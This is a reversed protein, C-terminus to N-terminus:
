QAEGVYVGPLMFAYNLCTRVFAINKQVDVVNACSCKVKDIYVRAIYTYVNQKEGWMCVGISCISGGHTPGCCPIVHVSM